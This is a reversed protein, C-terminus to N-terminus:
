KTTKAPLLSKCISTDKSLQHRHKRAFRKKICLAIKGGWKGSDHASKIVKPMHGGVERVCVAGIEEVSQECGQKPMSFCQRFIGTGQDCQRQLSVCRRMQGPDACVLRKFHPLYLALFKEKHIEPHREENTKGAFVGSTTALAALSLITLLAGPLSQLPKISRM